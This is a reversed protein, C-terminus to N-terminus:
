VQIHHKSIFTDTANEVNGQSCGEVQKAVEMLKVMEFIAGTGWRWCVLGELLM